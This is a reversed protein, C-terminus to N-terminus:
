VAALSAIAAEIPRNRQRLTRVRLGRRRREAVAHQADLEICRAFRLASALELNAVAALARRKGAVGSERSARPRRQQLMAADNARRRSLPRARPQRLPREPSTFM